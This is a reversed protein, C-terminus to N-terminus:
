MASSLTCFGKHLGRLRCPRTITHSVSNESCIGACVCSVVSPGPSTSQVCMLWHCDRLVCAGPNVMCAAVCEGGIVNKLITIVGFFVGHMKAGVLTLPLAGPGGTDKCEQSAAASYTNGTLHKHAIHRM